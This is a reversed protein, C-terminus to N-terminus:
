LVNIQISVSLIGCEVERLQWSSATVPCRGATPHGAPVGQKRQQGFILQHGGKRLTYRM